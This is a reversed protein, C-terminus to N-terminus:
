FQGPIAQKKVGKTEITKYKRAYHDSDVSNKRIEKGCKKTKGIRDQNTKRIPDQNTKGRRDQNTKRVM